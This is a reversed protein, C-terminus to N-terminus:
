KALTIKVRYIHSETGPPQTFLFTAPDTIVSEVKIQTATETVTWNADSVFESWTKGNNFSRQLTYNVKPVTGRQKEVTFGFYYPIFVPYFEPPNLIPLPPIPVSASDDARSELIWENLNNFGDGDFDDLIGILKTKDGFRLEAYESYRNVIVIPVQFKRDSFDYTVGGTQFARDLELELVATTGSKFVPPLAFSDVFPNALLVRPDGGTVFNPFISAPREGTVPDITVTDSLPDKQNQMYRMSIYLRDVTPYTTTASFGSWKIINPRIYSLEMFGKKTWRTSNFRVGFRQNNKEAYGEPIPYIVPNINVNLTSNRLRPFNYHYVGPVIESEFKKLQKDSYNSSTSYRTIIYERVNVADHLNYYISFSSDKFGSYPRPLDSPPAAKLLCLEPRRPEIIIAPIVDSFSFYPGPNTRSPEGFIVFGTTGLVCGPPGPPIYFPAICNQRIIANGDRMSVDYSGGRFVVDGSKNQRYIKSTNNQMVVEADVPAVATALLVSALPLSLTQTRIM